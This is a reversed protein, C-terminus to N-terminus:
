CPQPPDGSTLEGTVTGRLTGMMTWSLKLPPIPASARWVMTSPDTRDPVLAGPIPAQTVLVTLVSGHPVGTLEVPRTVAGVLEGVLGAVTVVGSVVKVATAAAAAAEASGAVAQLAIGVETGAGLTLVTVVGGLLSATLEVVALVDGKHSFGNTALAPLVTLDSWGAGELDLHVTTGSPINNRFDQVVHDFSLAANIPMMSYNHICCDAV